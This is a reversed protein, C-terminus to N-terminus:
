QGFEVVDAEILLRPQTYLLLNLDTLDYRVNVLALRKGEVSGHKAEFNQWLKNMAAQYLAREGSVRAVAFAQTYMGFGFSAGLVYGARAEGSVSRAVIRYNAQSLGVNTLSAAAHMGTSACGAHTFAIGLLLGTLVLPKKLPNPSKKLM